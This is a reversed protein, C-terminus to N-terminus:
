IGYFGFLTRQISPYGQDLPRTTPFGVEARSRDPELKPGELRAVILIWWRNRLLKVVTFLVLM